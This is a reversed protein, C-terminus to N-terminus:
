RRHWRLDGGAKGAASAARHQTLQGADAIESLRDEGGGRDRRTSLELREYRGDHIGDM